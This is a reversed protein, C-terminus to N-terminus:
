LEGKNEALFSDTTSVSSWLGTGPVFVQGLNICAGSFIIHVVAQALKESQGQKAKKKKLKDFM